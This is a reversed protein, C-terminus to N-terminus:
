LYKLHPSLSLSSVVFGFSLLVLLTPTLTLTPPLAFALVRTWPGDIDMDYRMMVDYRLLMVGQESIWICGLGDEDEDESAQTKKLARVIDLFFGGM